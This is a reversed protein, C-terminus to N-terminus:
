RQTSRAGSRSWVYLLTLLAGGSLAYAASWLGELPFLAYAFLMLGGTLALFGIRAPVERKTWASPRFFATLDIKRNREVKRGHWLIYLDIAAVVAGAVLWLLPIMLLAAANDLGDAGRRMAHLSVQYFLAGNLLSTLIAACQFTRKRM